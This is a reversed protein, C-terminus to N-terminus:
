RSQTKFRIATCSTLKPRQDGVRKTAEVLNSQDNSIGLLDEWTLAPYFEIAEECDTNLGSKGRVIEVFRLAWKGIRQMVKANLEVQFQRAKM